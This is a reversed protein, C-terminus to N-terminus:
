LEGSVSVVGFTGPVEEGEPRKKSFRASMKLGRSNERREGQDTGGVRNGSKTRRIFM